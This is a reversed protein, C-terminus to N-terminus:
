TFLIQVKVTPFIVVVSSFQVMESPFEVEYTTIEEEDLEPDALLTRVPLSTSGHTVGDDDKSVASQMLDLVELILIVPKLLAFRLNVLLRIICDIVM